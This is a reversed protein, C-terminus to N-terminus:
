TLAEWLRLALLALAVLVAPDFLAVALTVLRAAERMRALYFPTAAYAHSQGEAGTAGALAGPNEKVIM